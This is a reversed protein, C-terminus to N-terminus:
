EKVLEAVAAAVDDPTFQKEAAPDLAFTRRLKGTRDYLKYHPLAGGEIEFAEMGQPGTPLSILNILKAAGRKLLEHQVKLPGSPDDMSVTVVALKDGFQNALEATHPLQVLCPICWTAWFDVLVPKGHQAAIAADYGARDVVRTKVAVPTTAASADAASNPASSAASVSASDAASQPVSDSTSDTAAPRGCGALGTALWALAACRAASAPWVARKSM